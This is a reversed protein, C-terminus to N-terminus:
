SVQFLLPFPSAITGENTNAAYAGFLAASAECALSEAISPNDDYRRANSDTLSDSDYDM